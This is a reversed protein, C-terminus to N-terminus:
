TVKKSQPVFRQDEVLSSLHVSPKNGRKQAQAKVKNPRWKQRKTLYETNLKQGVAIQIGLTAITM